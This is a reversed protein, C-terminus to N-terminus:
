DERVMEVACNFEPQRILLIDGKIEYPYPGIKQNDVFATTTTDTATYTGSYEFVAGTSMKAKSHYRGSKYFSYKLELIQAACPGGIGRKFSWLGILEEKPSSALATDTFISAVLLLLINVLIRYM